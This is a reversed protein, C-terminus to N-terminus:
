RHAAMDLLAQREREVLDEGKRPHFQSGDILAGAVRAAIELRTDGAPLPRIARHSIRAPGPNAQLVHEIARTHLGAGDLNAEVAQVLRDDRVSRVEHLREVDIMRAVALYHEGSCHVPRLKRQDVTEREAEDHGSPVRGIPDLHEVVDFHEVLGIRVVPHLRGVRDRVRRVRADAGTLGADFEHRNAPHHGPGEDGVDLRAVRQPDAGRRERAADREDAIPAYRPDIEGTIAALAPLFRLEARVLTFVAEALPLDAETQRGRSLVRQHDAAGAAAALHLGVCGIPVWGPEHAVDYLLGGDRSGSSSPMIIRVKRGIVSAAPMARKGQLTWASPLNDSFYTLTSRGAPSSVNGFPGPASAIALLQRAQWEASM